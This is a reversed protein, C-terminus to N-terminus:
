ARTPARPLLFAKLPIPQLGKKNQSGFPDFEAFFLDRGRLEGETFEREGLLFLDYRARVSTVSLMFQELALGIQEPNIEETGFARVFQDRYEKMAQLKAVVDELSENM